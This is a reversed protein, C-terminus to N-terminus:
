LLRTMANPVTALATGAAEVLMLFNLLIFVWVKM